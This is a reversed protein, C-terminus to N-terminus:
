LHPCSQLCPGCGGAVPGTRNVFIPEGDNRIKFTTKSKGPIDVQEICTVNTPLKIQWIKKGKTNFSMLQSDMNAIVLNKERRFLDCVTHPNSQERAQWAHHLYVEHVCTM